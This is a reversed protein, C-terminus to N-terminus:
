TLKGASRHASGASTLMCHVAIHQAQRLLCAICQSTSLRGFYAHSASRHASGTSTLMRHVSCAICQAHRLTSTDFHRLTSTDFHRLTSTNFVQWDRERWQTIKLTRSLVM